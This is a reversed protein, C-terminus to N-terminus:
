REVTKITLIGKKPGPVSGKIMILDKDNDIKIVELNEVTVQDSGKRGPLKQGKFVRSADVSGISGPARHFHSGHTKPGTNHGWREVNGAFGKGKSTGTVNVLEGKEFEEVTIESGVDLQDSINRFEQLYKKPDVGQKKFHGKIPKNLKGENIDEFGLQLANYGDKDETKKQTVACPGAKIVTVPVVKGDDQFIQTMGLKRGIIGKGM